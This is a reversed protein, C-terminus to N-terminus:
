GCELTFEYIQRLQNFKDTRTDIVGVADAFKLGPNSGGQPDFMEVSSLRDNSQHLILHQKASEHWM